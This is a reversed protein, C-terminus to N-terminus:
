PRAAGLIGIGVQEFNDLVLLLERDGLFDAIRATLDRGSEEGVGLARGISSPVLASDRVTDLPVWLAGDAFHTELRHAVELALRTKGAGGPGLLTGLRAGERTFLHRVEALEKERGVVPTPPAPLAAGPVPRRGTETGSEDPEARSAPGTVQLGEPTIDFVWGLILAVPFGVIVLAIVATVARDPLGVYPFTTETVEILVWGAVGYGILVRYVKRRKLEGLFQVLRTWAGDGTRLTM